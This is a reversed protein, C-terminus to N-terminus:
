GLWDLAVRAGVDGNDALAVLTVRLSPNLAVAVRLEENMSDAVQDGATAYSSTFRRVAPTTPNALLSSVARKIVALNEDGLLAVVAAGAEADDVVALVEAAAAREEWLRQPRGVTGRETGHASRLQSFLVRHGSMPLQTRKSTLRCAATHLVWQPYIRANAPGQSAPGARRRQEVHM